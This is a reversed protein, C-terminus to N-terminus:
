GSAGQMFRVQLTQFGIAPRFMSDLDIAAIGPDALTQDAFVARWPFQLMQIGFTAADFRNDIHTEPVRRMRRALEALHIVGPAGRRFPVQVSPREPHPNTATAAPPPLSDGTRANRVPVRAQIADGVTREDVGYQVGARPEELHIVRPIGDILVLLVAPALREMRLLSLKALRTDDADSITEDSIPPRLSMNDTGYARVHLAPWGSVMRSRLVFGTVPGAPGTPVDTGATWGPLRVLREAEDVEDRVVAYLQELTARDRTTVTGVSLAGEILADTWGRDLHFFRISEPPLLTADAVLHSFPVAELLRLRALWLRLNRPVRRPGPDPADTTEAPELEAVIGQLAAAVVRHLVSWSTILETV